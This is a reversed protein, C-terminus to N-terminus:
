DHNVHCLKHPSHKRPQRRQDDLIDLVRALHDHHPRPGPAPRDGAGAAPRFRRAHVAIVLPRRGVHGDVAPAHQHLHPHAPHAARGQAALRLREALLDGADQLTVLRTSSRPIEPFDITPPGGAAALVIDAGRLPALEPETLPHGLDGLFVVHLGEARFHVITM